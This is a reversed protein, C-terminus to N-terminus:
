SILEELNDEYQALAYGPLVLRENTRTYSPWHGSEECDAFLRIADSASQWGIMRAEDDLIHPWPSHPPQEEVALFVFELSQGTILKYVRSYFADQVHYGYNHVAKSFADPRSDQTKKLDVAVGSANLKDFRCRLLVGTDPCEVFASLECWGPASLMEACERDSQLEERMGLVHSSESATLVKDGGAVKAAAKYESATRTRVEQLLIYEADFREPELAACHIATGIEMNRTSKRQAQGIYHRPSRMMLKLGSTSIGEYAHYAENPMDTVFCGKRALEPTLEEYPIPKM